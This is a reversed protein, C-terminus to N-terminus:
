TLDISDFIEVVSYKLLAYVNRYWYFEDGGEEVVDVVRKFEGAM